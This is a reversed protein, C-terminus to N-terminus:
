VVSRTHKCSWMIGYPSSRFEGPAPCVSKVYTVAAHGEELSEDALHLRMTIMASLTCGPKEHTSEVKPDVAIELRQVQPCLRAITELAQIRLAPQLPTPTLSEQYDLISLRELGTWGQLLSELTCPTLLSGLQPIRAEVSKLHSLRGLHNLNLPPLPGAVLVTLSALLPFHLLATMDFAETSGVGLWLEKLGVAEMGQLADAVSQPAQVEGREELFRLDLHLSALSAMNSVLPILFHSTICERIGFRTLQRPKPLKMLFDEVGRVKIGSDPYAPTPRVLFFEKLNPLESASSALSDLRPDVAEKPDLTIKVSTITTPLFRSLLDDDAGFWDELEELRPFPHVEYPADGLQNAQQLDELDLGM